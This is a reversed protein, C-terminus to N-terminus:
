SKLDFYVNKHLNNGLFELCNVQYPHPYIYVNKLIKRFPSFNVLRGEKKVYKEELLLFAKLKGWDKPDEQGFFFKGWDRMLFYVQM